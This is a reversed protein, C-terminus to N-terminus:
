FPTPLNQYAQWQAGGEPPRYGSVEATPLKWGSAGSFFDLPTTDLAFITELLRQDPFPGESQQKVPAGVEMCAYWWYIRDVQTGLMKCMLSYRPVKHMFPDTRLQVSQIGECLVIKWKVPMLTQYFNLAIAKGADKVKDYTTGPAWFWIGSRIAEGCGSLKGWDQLIATQYDGRAKESKVVLTSLTGALESCAIILPVSGDPLHHEKAMQDNAFKFCAVSIDVAEAGIVAKAKSILAGELKNLLKDLVMEVATKPQDTSHEPLGMMKVVQNYTNTYIQGMIGNLLAVNTSLTTVSQVYELEDLLQNKVENWDAETFKVPRTIKELKGAWISFAANINTYQSRIGGVDAIGLESSMSGYIEKQVATMTPWEQAPQDIIGLTARKFIGETISCFYCSRHTAATLGVTGKLIKFSQVKVANRILHLDGDEMMAASTCWYEGDECAGIWRIGNHPLDDHKVWAANQLRMIIDQGNQKVLALLFDAAGASIQQIVMGAPTAIKHWASNLYQWVHGSRGRVWMNGDATATIINPFDSEPLVPLAKVSGPDVIVDKHYEMVVPNNDKSRIFFARKFNVPALHQPFGFTSQNYLAYDCIKVIGGTSNSFQSVSDRTLTWVSGDAAVAIVQNEGSGPYPLAQSIGTKFGLAPRPAHPRLSNARFLGPPLAVLAHTM